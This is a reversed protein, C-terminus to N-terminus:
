HPIVGMSNPLYHNCKAKKKKKKQVVAKAAGNATFVATATATTGGQAPITDDSDSSSGFLLSAYNEGTDASQRAAADNNRKEYNVTAGTKNKGM